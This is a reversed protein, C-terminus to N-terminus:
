NKMESAPKNDSKYSYIAILFLFDQIIPKEASENSFSINKNFEGLVFSANMSLKDQEISGQSLLKSIFTKTM